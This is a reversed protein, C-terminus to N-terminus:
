SARAAATALPATGQAPAALADIAPLAGDTPPDTGPGGTGTVTVAFEEVHLGGRSDSVRVRVVYSGPTTCEFMAHDTYSPAGGTGFEWAVGAVDGDPDSANATAHVVLPAPGTLPEVVPDATPPQNAGGAPVVVITGSMTPGHLSCEYRYTGPQDFTYTVSPGGADRYEQLATPWVTEWSQSPALSVLDHGQTARDFQWEVTDGVAITVVSGGTDVSEWRNSTTDDVADVVWTRGEAAAAGTTTAAVTGVLASAILLLLALAARPM